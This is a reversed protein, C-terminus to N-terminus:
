VNITLHQSSDRAVFQVVWGCMWRPEKEGTRVAVRDAKGTESQSDRLSHGCRWPAPGLLFGTAASGVPMRRRSCRRGLVWLPAGGSQSLLGCCSRPLRGTASSSSREVLPMTLLNFTIFVEPPLLFIGKPKTLFSRWCLSELTHSPHAWGRGEARGSMHPGCRKFSTVIIAATCSFTEKSIIARMNSSMASGRIFLMVSNKWHLPFRIRLHLAALDVKLSLFGSAFYRPEWRPNYNWHSVLFACIIQGCM